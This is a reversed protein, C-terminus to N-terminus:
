NTEYRPEQMLQTSQNTPMVQVSQSDIVMARLMKKSDTNRVSIVSGSAGEELAQGSATIKMGPTSYHINVLANKKVVAPEVIEHSRIPRAASISRVPSKGILGALDGVVDNRTSTLPFDRLEIDKADIIEGNRLPRKLVPVEVLEEFRGAVPMASIVANEAVFMLNASWRKAPKDFQLGHIEVTIPKNYSFLANQRQGQISAAVKDGAGKDALAFGIAGEADEYRLQFLAQQSATAGGANALAFSAVPMALVLFFVAVFFRILGSM